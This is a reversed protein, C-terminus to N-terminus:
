LTSLGYFLCIFTYVGVLRSKLLCLMDELSPMTKFIQVSKSSNGTADAKIKGSSLIPTSLNGDVISDQLFIRMYVLAMIAVSTSVQYFLNILQNDMFDFIEAAKIRCLQLDFLSLSRSLPPLPSFVLLSHEVFLRRRDLAQSSELRRLESGKLFM